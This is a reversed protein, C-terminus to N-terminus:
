ALAELVFVSSGMHEQTPAVERTEALRLGAEHAEAEVRAADLQALRLEVQEESLNGDPTVVQRLRSVLISGNEARVEIPLSSYIWGDAELVDPLPRDVEDWGAAPVSGEVIALAAFGQPALAARICRLSAIREERGELLQIAQMPVAVLAFPDHAALCRMDDVTARADLGEQDARDNFASVLAPELDVGDVCHGSRALDLAVRGTGCGLELVPGGAVAALERWLSLDASYAGNEVDHWIVTEQATSVIV